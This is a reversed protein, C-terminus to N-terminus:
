GCTRILRVGQAMTQLERWGRWITLWGPDRDRARALFGGLRAMAVLLTQYTWGAPPQGFRASFLEILEHGFMQANVPLDPHAQALLKTNLLRVAVVACVALMSQIRQATSLQSREIQAGTKLAKHYEEILWRQAYRCVIRRAEVFRECPLSTFLGWQLAAQGTTGVERVFVVNWEFPATGGGPRWTGRLTVSTSRVELKVTRAATEGGRRLEVEFTGRLPAAQMARFVTQDEQCLARPHSARIVFHVGADHCRVFAEYIDCERDAVFTWHGGEPASKQEFCRAWRQSERPRSLIRRRSKVKNLPEAPRVWCQQDLLGVVTVEPEQELNWAEVRLALTSPGLTGLSWPSSGVPGM